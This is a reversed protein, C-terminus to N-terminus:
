SGRGNSPLISRFYTNGASIAQYGQIMKLVYEFGLKFFLEGILVALM